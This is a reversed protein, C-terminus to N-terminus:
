TEEGEEVEGEGRREEEEYGGWCEDLPFPPEPGALRCRYLSKCSTSLSLDHLRTTQM